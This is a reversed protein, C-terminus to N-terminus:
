GSEVELRLLALQLGPVQRSGGQLILLERVVLPQYVQDLVSQLAKRCHTRKEETLGQFFGCTGM